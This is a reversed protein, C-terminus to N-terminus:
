LFGDNIDSTLLTIARDRHDQVFEIAQTPSNSIRKLLTLAASTLSFINAPAHDSRNTYRDEGLTMDKDRHMIEVGWHKRNLDLIDKPMAQKRSSILYSSM